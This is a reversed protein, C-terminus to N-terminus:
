VVVKVDVSASPLGTVSDPTTTIVVSSFPEKVVEVEIIGSAKVVNVVVQVVFSALPFSSVSEPTTITVVSASPAKVVVVETM